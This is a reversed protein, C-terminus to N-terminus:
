SPSISFRGSKVVTQYSLRKSFLFASLLAFWLFPPPSFIKLLTLRADLAVSPIILELLAAAPVM